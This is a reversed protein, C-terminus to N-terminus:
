FKRVKSLRWLTELYIIERKFSDHGKKWCKVEHPLIIYVAVYCSSDCCRFNLM